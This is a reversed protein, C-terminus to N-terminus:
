AAKPIEVIQYGMRKADQRLRRLRHAEAQKEYKSTDPFVFEDQYKLMHYVICALKRATATVAKSPGRRAKIRRYFRGLWTDTKGAAWAALRLVTAARNKVKRTRRSLVKGGSIKTGPSLGLWSCFARASRWRSMDVGIEGILMLVNLVNFGCVKMLDVGCIRVLAETFDITAANNGSDYRKKKQKVAGPEAAPVLRAPVPPVVVKVKPIANLAAEIKQDCAAIQKQYFEWGELSQRLVFLDEENYNGNLAQEMEAVTSKRCRGDRLKVLEKPDHNGELIARVIRLGTEGVVDSVTLDLHVNM